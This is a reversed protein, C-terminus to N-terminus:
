GRLFEYSITITATRASPAESNCRMEQHGAAFSARVVAAGLLLLQFRNAMWHSQNSVYDTQGPFHLVIAPPFFYCARSM